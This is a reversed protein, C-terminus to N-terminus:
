SGLRLLTNASQANEDASKIVKVQMEFQRQLQIMQVLEGATDVNSGEMVGTQLVSGNATPLPTKPDANRMLGDAGRILQKQGADVVKFKGLIAMSEPGQGQPIISLTGDDGIQISQFPPIALPAGNADLLPRGGALLQGNPTLQLSGARTYGESGDASQVALWKDKGMSVDLANGTVQQSGARNNFGVDSLMTDIRSRYGAGKIPFAQTNALAEKFGPTDANALNHSVAAQAQLTASAGTMAVYAAKDM